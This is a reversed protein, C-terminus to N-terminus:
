IKIAGETSYQLIPEDDTEELEREKKYNQKEEETAFNENVNFDLGGSVTCVLNHNPYTELISVQGRDDGTKDIWMTVYANDIPRYWKGFIVAGQSHLYEFVKELEYSCVVPKQRYHGEFDEEENEPKADEPKENELPAVPSTNYGNEVGYATTTGLVGLFLLSFIVVKTLLNKM